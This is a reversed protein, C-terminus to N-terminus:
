ILGCGSGEIYNGTLQKSIMVGIPVINGSGLTDNFLGCVRMVIRFGKVHKLKTSITQMLVLFNM